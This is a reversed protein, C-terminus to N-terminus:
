DMQGNTTVTHKLIIQQIIYIIDSSSRDFNKIVSLLIPCNAALSRSMQGSTKKHM